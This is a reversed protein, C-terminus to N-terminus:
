VPAVYTGDMLEYGFTGTGQNYFTSKSILDFMCPIGNRDLTPILDIQNEVFFRYIKGSFYRKTTGRNTGFLYVNQAIGLDGSTYQNERAITQEIGDLYFTDNKYEFLLRKGSLQSAKFVGNATQANPYDNSSSPVGYGNGYNYSFANGFWGIGNEFRINNLISGFPNTDALYSPYMCELLVYPKNTIDIRPIVFYTTDNGVGQLFRCKRFGAPLGGREWALKGDVMMKLAEAGDVMISKIM